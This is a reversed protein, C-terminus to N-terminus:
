YRSAVQRITTETALLALSQNDLAEFLFDSSIVLNLVDSAENLYQLLRRTSLKKVDGTLNKISFKFGLFIDLHAPLFHTNIPAM